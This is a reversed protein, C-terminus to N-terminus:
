VDVDNASHLRVSWGGAQDTNLHEHHPVSNTM